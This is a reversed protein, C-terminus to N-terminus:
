HHLRAIGTSLEGDVVLTAICSVIWVCPLTVAMRRVLLRRKLNVTRDHELLDRVMLWPSHQEINLTLRATLYMM